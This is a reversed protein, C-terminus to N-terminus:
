HGSEASRLLEEYKLKRRDEYTVVKSFKKKIMLWNVMRKGNTCGLASTCKDWVYALIRGFKDDQYYDYELEVPEREIIDALYEKAEEYGGEGRNPADIGIMRVTQGNDIEFTDGDLVTTVIATKPFITESQKYGRTMQLKQLDKQWDWGLISALILGPFFITPIGLSVLLARPLSKNKKQTM